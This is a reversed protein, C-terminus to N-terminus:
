IIKKPVIIKRPEIKIKAKDIFRFKTHDTLFRDRLVEISLEESKRSTGIIDYGRSTLYVAHSLGLGSSAGTILIRKSM